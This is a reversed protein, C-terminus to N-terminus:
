HQSGDVQDRLNRLGLDNQLAENESKLNELEKRLKDAEIRMSTAEEVYGKIQARINDVDSVSKMNDDLLSLGVMIAASTMSANGNEDMFETIKQDLEKALTIVYSPNEETQLNYNKGCITVKVKNLMEKGGIRGINRM